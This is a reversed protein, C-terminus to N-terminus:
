LIFPRELGFLARTLRLYAWTPAATLAASVVALAVAGPRVALNVDMYRQQAVVSIMAPQAVVCETAAAFLAVAM